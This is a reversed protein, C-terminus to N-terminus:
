SCIKSSALFHFVRPMKFSNTSFVFVTMLKDELKTVIQTTTVDTRMSGVCKLPGSTISPRVKLKSPPFCDVQFFMELVM